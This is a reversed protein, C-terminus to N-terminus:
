ANEVGTVTRRHEREEEKGAARGVEDVPVELDLGAEHRDVPHRVLILGVRLLRDLEDLDVSLGDRRAAELSVSECGRAVYREGRQDRLHRRVLEGLQALAPLDRSTPVDGPSLLIKRRRRLSASAPPTPPPRGGVPGNPSSWTRLAEPVLLRARRGSTASRASPWRSAPSPTGSGRCRPRRRRAESSGRRSESTRSRRGTTGASAPPTRRGGRATPSSGCPNRAGRGRWRAARTKDLAAGLAPIERYSLRGAPDPHGTPVILSRDPFAADLRGHTALHVISKGACAALVAERKGEPGVLLTAAKFTKAIAKVEAEAGPLTGDPNGVLLMSRADIKFGKAPQRLSGVHTVNVVPLKEALWAGDHRLLSFPLQRFVGTSSIVVLSATTLEDAIPAVM